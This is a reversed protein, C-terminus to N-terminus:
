PLNRSPSGASGIDQHRAVVVVDDNARARGTTHQCVPQRCLRFDLHQQELGAARVARQEHAHGAANGLEILRTEAPLVLGRRLRRHVAPAHVLRASLQETSRTRDVGHDIDAPLRGVVIM